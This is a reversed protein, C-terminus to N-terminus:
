NQLEEIMSTAQGLSSLVNCIQGKMAGKKECSNQINQM